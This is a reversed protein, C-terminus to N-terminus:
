GLVLRCCLYYNGDAYEMEETEENITAACPVEEIEFFYGGCSERAPLVAENWYNVIADGENKDIHKAIWRGFEQIAGKETKRNSFGDIIVTGNEREIIGMFTM